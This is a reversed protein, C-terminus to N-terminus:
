EDLFSIFFDLYEEWRFLDFDKPHMLFEKEMTTGKIIQLQHFKITKLPLKSIIDAEIASLDSVKTIGDVITIFSVDMGPLKNLDNDTMSTVAEKLDDTKAIINISEGEKQIVSPEQIIDDLADSNLGM